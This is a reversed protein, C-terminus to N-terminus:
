PRCSCSHLGLCRSETHARGESLCPAQRTARQRSTSAEVAQSLKTPTKAASHRSGAQRLVVGKSFSETQPLETTKEPGPINGSKVLRVPRRLVAAKRTKRREALQSGQDQESAHGTSAGVIPQRGPPARSLVVQNTQLRYLESVGSRRGDQSRAKCEVAEDPVECKRTPRLYYQGPSAARLCREAKAMMRKGCHVLTPM